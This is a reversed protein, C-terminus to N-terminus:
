TISLSTVKHKRNKFRYPNETQPAFTVPSPQNTFSNKIYLTILHIIYNLFRILFLLFKEMQTNVM